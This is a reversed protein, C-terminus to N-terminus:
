INNTKEYLKEKKLQDEVFLTSHKKLVKTKLYYDHMTERKIVLFIVEAILGVGTLYFLQKFLIERFLVRGFTMKGLTPKVYMENLNKGLSGNLKFYVFPIVIFYVLIDVMIIIFWHKGMIFYLSFTVLALVILVFIYDYCLSIFREFIRNKKM